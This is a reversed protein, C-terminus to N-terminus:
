DAGPSTKTLNRLHHGSMDMAFIESPGLRYSAFTLTKGDPSFSVGHDSGPETTLRKIESGDLKALYIDREATRAGDEMEVKISTSLTFALWEGDPTFRLLPKEGMVSMFLRENTGEANNLYVGTKGDRTSAYAVANGDSSIAPNTNAHHPNDGYLKPELSHLDMVYIEQEPAAFNEAVTYIMKRANMAVDARAAWHGEPVNTLNTMDRTELDFLFLNSGKFNGGSDRDSTVVVKGEIPVAYPWWENHDTETLRTQHSGDPNMQFLEAAGHRYSYFYIKTGDASWVPATDYPNGEAVAAGVPLVTACAVVSRLILNKM